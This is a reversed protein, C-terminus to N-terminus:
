NSWKVGYMDEYDAIITKDPKIEIYNLRANKLQQIEEPDDDYHRAVKMREVFTAKYMGNTFYIDKDSIPLNHRKIFAKIESRSEKTDSRSTLIIIRNKKAEKKLANLGFKNINGYVSALTTDFDFSVIEPSYQELLTLFKM